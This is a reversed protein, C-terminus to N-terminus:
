LFRLDKPFRGIGNSVETVDGFLAHSAVPPLTELQIPAQDAPAEVDLTRVLSFTLLVVSRRLQIQRKQQRHQKTRLIM